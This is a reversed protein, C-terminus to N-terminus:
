AVDEDPILDEIRLEVGADVIETKRADGFNKRVEQLEDIIVQRLLLENALIAELEGIYKLIAELEDIIKQRELASLRRLQLDLIAQAQIDSFNLGGVVKELDKSRAADCFKGDAM